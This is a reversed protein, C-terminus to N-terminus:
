SRADMEPLTSTTPPNFPEGPVRSSVKFKVGSELSGWSAYLKSSNSEPSLKSSAIRARIWTRPTCCCTSKCVRRSQAASLPDVLPNCPSPDGYRDLAVLIPTRQESCIAICSIWPQAPLPSRLVWYGSRGYVRADRACGIRRDYSNPRLM